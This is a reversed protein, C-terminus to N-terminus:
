LTVVGSLLLLVPQHIVYVALAHRGVFNIPAVKASKAWSPYGRKAFWGGLSAGSLYLLTYPLVPYYDGSAFNPGPFGLWSLWETQYLWGPMTVIHSGLGFTGQAIHLSALFLVFFLIAAVPNKPLLHAKKLLAAIFTSAAMCFIIGFSIPVDVAALYTVLFIALAVAGYRGARKLNSKSQACMCGAILLFTWSISARWIDIFPPAFWALDKGALFRLDYCYHFLVMSIVSIGRLLDFM